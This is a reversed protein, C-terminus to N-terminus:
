CVTANKNTEKYLDSLYAGIEMLSISGSANIVRVKGKKALTIVILELVPITVISGSLNIVPDESNLLYDLFEQDM